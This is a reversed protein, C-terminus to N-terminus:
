VEGGIKIPKCNTYKEAVNPDTILCDDEEIISGIRVIKYKILGDLLVNLFIKMGYNLTVSLKNNEFTWKIGDECIEGRAKLLQSVALLYNCYSSIQLSSVGRQNLSKEDDINIYFGYVNEGYVYLPHELIVAGDYSNHKM